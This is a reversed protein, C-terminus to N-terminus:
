LRFNFYRRGEADPNGLWALLETLGEPAGARPAIGIRLDVGQPAITGDVSLGLLNDRPMQVLLRGESCGVRVTYDGLPQWRRNFEGQLDFAQVEGDLIDCVPEGLVYDNVQLIVPGRLAIPSSVPSLDLLESLDGAFRADIVQVSGPSAIVRANGALPNNEHRAVQLDVVGNLTFVHWPRVQWSINHVTLDPTVVQAVSGRWISGEVNNLSVGQPLTVFSVALRAPFVVVITVVYVLLFLIVLKTRVAM